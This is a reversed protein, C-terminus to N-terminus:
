MRAEAMRQREFMYALGTRDTTINYNHTNTNNSIIAGNQSPIFMEPGREGVMYPLGATVPGGFARGPANPPQPIEGTQEVIYQTRVIAPVNRWADALLDVKGTQEVTAATTPSIGLQRLEVMDIKGDNAIKPLKDIDEIYKDLPLKGALFQNNIEEQAKSMAVSKETALGYKIMVADTAKIAEESSIRGAEQAKLIVDLASQALMQKAQADTANALSKALSDVRTITEGVNARYSANAAAAKEITAAEDVHAQNVRMISDLQANGSEIMNNKIEENQKIIADSTVKIASAVKVQTESTVYQNQLARGTAADWQTISNTMGIVANNYDDISMKGALVEAYIKEQSALFADSMHNAGDTILDLTNAADNLVPIVANGIKTKFAELKDGLNDMNVELDRAAKVAKDDLTLGLNKAERAAAKIADGGQELIKGMELGARGFKQMAFQSRQVPDQIANYEDSLKALTNINPQIGNKIASKFAAELTGVSVNVDDAVQILSSAEEANAGIARSLDRVEAAYKMTGEVADKVFDTVKGIANGAMDLGAKLDALGIKMGKFGSSSKDASDALKDTSKTVNDVSDAVNNLDKAIADSGQESIKLLLEDSVPM